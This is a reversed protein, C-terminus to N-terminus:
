RKIITNEKKKVSTVISYKLPNGWTVTGRGLLFSRHLNVSLGIDFVTPSKKSITFLSSLPTSLITIWPSSSMLIADEVDISVNNSSSKLNTIFSLINVTLLGLISFIWVSCICLYRQILFHELYNFNQRPKVYIICTIM